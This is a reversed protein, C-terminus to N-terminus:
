SEKRLVEEMTQRFEQLVREVTRKSRQTQTSIEAIEFGEIRLLVMQKQVAPLRELTEDISIQLFERATRDATHGLRVGDDIAADGVTQRTDRRAAHHFRGKARIKNLAIVLLIKWLEEGAPVDYHGKRAAQFFNAFVSQVIDDEDVLRAVDSSSRARALSRVRRAYRRYLEAAASEDGGRICRLLSKDSREIMAM